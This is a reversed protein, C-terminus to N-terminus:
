RARTSENFKVKAPIEFQMKGEGDKPAQKTKTASRSTVINRAAGRTLASDGAGGSWMDDLPLNDPEKNLSELKNAVRRERARYMEDFRNALSCSRQM